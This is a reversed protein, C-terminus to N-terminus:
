LLRSAVSLELRALGSEMQLPGQPVLDGRDLNPQNVWVAESHEALVAYGTAIPEAAVKDKTRDELSNKLGYAGLFVVVLVAAIAALISFKGSWISVTKDSEEEPLLSSELRLSDTLKLRSYYAQRAESSVRLEAELKFFDAESISGEILDDILPDRENLTM